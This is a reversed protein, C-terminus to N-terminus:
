LPLVTAGPKLTAASQGKPTVAQVDLEHFGPYRDFLKVEVAQLKEPHACTFVFDADLDTHGDHGDQDGHKTAGANTPAKGGPLVTDPAGSVLEVSNVSCRAAPTTVFLTSAARLQRAMTQIALRDPASTAAHEFGLLNILPSELHMSLTNGDLVVDLKGVGHVHAGHAMATPAFLASLAAASTISVTVFVTRAVAFALYRAVPRHM